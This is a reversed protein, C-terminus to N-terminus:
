RFAGPAPGHRGPTTASGPPPVWPYPAVPPPPPTAGKSTNFAMALAILWGIGTWGTLVNVVLVRILLRSHRAYAVITPLLYLGLLVLVTLLTGM